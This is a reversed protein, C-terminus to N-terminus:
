RWGTNLKMIMRIETDGWRSVLSFTNIAMGGPIGLEKGEVLLQGDCVMAGVKLAEDEGLLLQGVIEVRVHQLRPLRAELIQEVPNCSAFM